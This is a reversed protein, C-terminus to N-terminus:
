FSVDKDRKSGPLKAQPLVEALAKSFAADMGRIQTM